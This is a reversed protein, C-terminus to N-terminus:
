FAGSSHTEAKLGRGVIFGGCEGRKVSRDGVVQSLEM